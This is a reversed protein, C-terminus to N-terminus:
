KQKHDRGAILIIREGTRWNAPAPDAVTHLTGDALRITIEYAPPAGGASPISQVSEVVGCGDCSSRIGAAEPEADPAESLVTAVIAPSLPNWNSAAALAMTSFAVAAISGVVLPLCDQKKFKTNM